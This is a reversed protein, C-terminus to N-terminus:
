SILRGCEDCYADNKYAGDQSFIPGVPGKVYDINPIYCNPPTAGEVCRWCIHVGNACKLGIFRPGQENIVGSCRIARCGSCDWLGDARRHCVAPKGCDHCPHQLVVADEPM